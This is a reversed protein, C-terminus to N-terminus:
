GFVLIGFRDSAHLDVPTHLIPQWASIETFPHREIRYFNGTWRDGPSPTDIAPTIGAFPILLEIVWQVKSSWARVRVGACTWSEDIESDIGRHHPNEVRADSVRAYPSVLLAM